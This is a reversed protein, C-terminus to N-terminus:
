QTPVIAPCGGVGDRLRRAKEPYAEAIDKLSECAIGRAYPKKETDVLYAKLPEIAAPGILTFVGM